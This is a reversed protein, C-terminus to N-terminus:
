RSGYGVIHRDGVDARLDSPKAYLFRYAFNKATGSKVHRECICRKRCKERLDAQLMAEAFNDVTNSYMFDNELCETVCKNIEATTRVGYYGDSYIISPTTTVTISGNPKKCILWVHDCQDLPTGFSGVQDSPEGLVLVAKINNEQLMSWLYTAMDVDDVEGSVRMPKNNAYESCVECVREHLNDGYNVYIPDNWEDRPISHTPGSIPTEICGSACLCGIALLVGIVRSVNDM